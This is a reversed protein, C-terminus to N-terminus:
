VLAHPPPFMRTRWDETSNLANFHTLNLYKKTTYTQKMGTDLKFTGQRFDQSSHVYSLFCFIDLHM